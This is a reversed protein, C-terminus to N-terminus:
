SSVQTKRSYIGNVGLDKGRQVLLSTLYESMNSLDQVYKEYPQAVIKPLALGNLPDFVLLHSTFDNRTHAPVSVDQLLHLVHGLTLFTKAFSSERGTSSSSTLATYYEDRAKDWNFPAKDSPLTFKQKRGDPAPELYGTAWTVNSYPKSGWEQTYCYLESPPVDSMYSIDWAKTPDHMHNARRCPELDEEKSGQELYKLITRNEYNLSLQTELGKKLGLYTKLHYDLGSYDAAKLTIKPHAIKDDYALARSFLFLAMLVSLYLTFQEKNM